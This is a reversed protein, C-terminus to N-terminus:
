KLVLRTIKFIKHCHVTLITVEIFEEFNEISQAFSNTIHIPKEEEEEKTKM